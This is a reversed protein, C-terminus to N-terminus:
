TRVELNKASYIMLLGREDEVIYRWVGGLKQFAAVVVGDFTYDGGTKRVKDGVRFAQHNAPTM